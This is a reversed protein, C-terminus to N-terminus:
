HTESHDHRREFFVLRIGMIAMLITGVWFTIIETLGHKAHTAPLELLAMYTAGALAVLGILFKAM